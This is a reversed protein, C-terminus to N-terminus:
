KEKKPRADKGDKKPNDHDRLVQEMVDIKAKWPLFQAMLEAEKRKSITVKGTRGKGKGGAKGKDRDFENGPPDFNNKRAWEELSKKEAATAQRLKDAPWSEIEKKFAALQPTMVPEEHGPRDKKDKDRKDNQAVLLSPIATICCVVLVTIVKRM